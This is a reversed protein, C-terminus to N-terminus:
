PAGVGGILLVIDGTAGDVTVNREPLPAFEVNSLELDAVALRAAEEFGDAFYARNMSETATADTPDVSEWGAEVLRAAAGSAVGGQGSANAVVVRARRLSESSVTSTTAESPAESTVSSPVPPRTSTTSASSAESIVLDVPTEPRGGIAVGAVVGLVVVGFVLWWIGRRM